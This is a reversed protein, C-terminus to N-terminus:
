RIRRDTLSRQKSFRGKIRRPLMRNKQVDTEGGNDHPRNRDIRDPPLFDRWTSRKDAAGDLAAKRWAQYATIESEWWAKARGGPTLRFPPPYLGSEILERRRTPKLGDYQGIESSRIVREPSM